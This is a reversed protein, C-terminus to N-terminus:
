KTSSHAEFPSSVPNTRSSSETLQLPLLLLFAHLVRLKWFLITDKNQNVCNTDTDLADFSNTIPSLVCYIMGLM